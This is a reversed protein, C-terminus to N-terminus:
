ASNATYPQFTTLCSLLTQCDGKSIKLKRFLSCLAAALTLFPLWLKGFSPFGLSQSKCQCAPTCSLLCIQLALSVKLDYRFLAEDRKKVTVRKLAAKPARTENKTLMKRCSIQIYTEGDLFISLFGNLSMSVQYVDVHLSSM